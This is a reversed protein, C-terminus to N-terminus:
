DGVINEKDKGKTNEKIRKERRDFIKWCKDMKEFLAFHPLFTRLGV